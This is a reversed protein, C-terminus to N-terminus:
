GKAAISFVVERAYEAPRQWDPRLKRYREEWRVWFGACLLSLLTETSRRFRTQYDLLTMGYGELFVKFLSSLGDGRLISSIEPVSFRQALVMNEYLIRAFEEAPLSSRSREWDILALGGGLEEGVLLNSLHLDAHVLVGPEQLEALELYRDGLANLKNAEIHLALSELSPKHLRKLYVKWPLQFGGNRVAAGYGRFEVSHLKRVVKGVKRFISLEAQSGVPALSRANVGPLFSQLFCVFPGQRLKKNAISVVGSLPVPAVIGAARCRDLVFAEKYYPAALIRSLPHELECRNKVKLVAVSVDSDRSKVFYTYNLNGQPRAPLLKFSRGAIKRLLPSLKSEFFPILLECNSM